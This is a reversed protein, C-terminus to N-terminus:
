SKVIKNVIILVLGAAFLAAVLIYLERMPLEVKTNLNLQLDDLNM